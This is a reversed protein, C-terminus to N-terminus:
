EWIVAHTTKSPSTSTEMPTRRWCPLTSRKCTAMAMPLPQLTRSPVRTKPRSRVHPSLMPSWVLSFSKRASYIQHNARSCVLRLLFLQVDCRSRSACIWRLWPCSVAGLAIVQRSFKRRADEPISDFYFVFRPFAKRYHRQWQRITDLTDASQKEGKIGKLLPQRDRERAAVLRKEFASPNTNNSRRSFLRSEPNQHTTSRSRTPSRSDQEAAEMVQRKPPPQGYPIEIQGSRARKAPLLGTRHPSNTANPVNALPRRTSM